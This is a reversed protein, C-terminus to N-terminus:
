MSNVKNWEMKIQKGKSRKCLKVFMKQTIKIIERKKKNRSREQIEKQKKKKGRREQREKEM